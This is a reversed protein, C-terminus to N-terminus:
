RGQGRTTPKPWTESFGQFDASEQKRAKQAPEVIPKSLAPDIVVAPKETM